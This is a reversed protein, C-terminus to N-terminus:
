DSDRWNGDGDSLCPPNASSLKSGISKFIAWFFSLCVIPWYPSMCVPFAPTILQEFPQNKSFVAQALCIVQCSHQHELSAVSQWPKVLLFGTQLVFVRMKSVMDPNKTQILKTCLLRSLRQTFPQVWGSELTCCTVLARESNCWYWVM